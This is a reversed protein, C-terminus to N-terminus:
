LRAGTWYGELERRVFARARHLLVRQNGPTLDMLGCVEDAGFGRVDRLEIVARQRPPLRDLAATVVEAAEAGLARAEPGERDPWSSPPLRWHGPSPDSAGQFRDRDVTPGQDDGQLPVHRREVAGRRRAINLMIHFVWTRLSSRGEFRPLGRLVELWAEQVVDEAAERSSVHVRALRLMLPGWDDVLAAYSSEDGALLAAVLEDDSREPPQPKPGVVPSFTAAGCWRM